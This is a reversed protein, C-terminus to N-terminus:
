MNHYIDQHFIIRYGFNLILNYYLVTRSVYLTVETLNSNKLSSAPYGYGYVGTWSIELKKLHKCNQLIKELKSETCPIRTLLTLNTINACNTSMVDCYLNSALTSLWPRDHYGLFAVTFSLQRIHNGCLNFIKIVSTEECRRYYPWVFKRWLSPVETFIRLSKSVYRLKVIDRSSLFSIIYVLLELPLDLINYM